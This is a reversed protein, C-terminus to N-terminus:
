FIYSIGFTITIAKVEQRFNITTETPPNAGWDQGRVDIFDAKTNLYDGYLNISYNELRYQFGAGVSWIFAISKNVYQYYELNSQDQNSTGTVTYEPSYVGVGGIKARAIFSFYEGFPIRFFPGAMIGGINWPRTVTTTLNADIKSGLSDAMAMQDVNNYGFMFDAQIGFNHTLRHEFVMRMMLGTKAFGPYSLSSDSFLSADYSAYYSLPISAGLELGLSTRRTNQGFTIASILLTIILLRTKM